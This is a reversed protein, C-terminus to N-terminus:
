MSLIRDLHKEGDAEAAAVELEAVIIQAANRAMEEVPLTAPDIGHTRLVARHSEILIKVMEEGTM